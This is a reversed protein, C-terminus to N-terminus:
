FKTAPRATTECIGSVVEDARGECRVFIEGTGRNITYSVNCGGSYGEAFFTTPSVTLRFRKGSEDFFDRHTTDVTLHLELEQGAPGGAARVRCALFIQGDGASALGVGASETMCASLLSTSILVLLKKATV